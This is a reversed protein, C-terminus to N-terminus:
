KNSNKKKFEKGLEKLYIEIKEKTFLNNISM